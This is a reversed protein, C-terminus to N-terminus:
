TFYLFVNSLNYLLIYIYSYMQFTLIFTNAYKLCNSWDYIQSPAFSFTSCPSPTPIIKM